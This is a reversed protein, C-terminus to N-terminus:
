NSSGFQEMGTNWCDEYLSTNNPQQRRIVNCTTTIKKDIEADKNEYYSDELQIAVWLFLAIGAISLIVDKLEKWKGM